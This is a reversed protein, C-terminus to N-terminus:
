VGLENACLTNECNMSLRDIGLKWQVHSMSSAAFKERGRNKKAVLSM